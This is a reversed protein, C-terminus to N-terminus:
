KSAENTIGTQPFVYGIDRILLAYWINSVCPVILAHNTWCKPLKVHVFPTLMEQEEYKIYHRNYKSPNLTQEHAIM